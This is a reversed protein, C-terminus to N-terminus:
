IAPFSAALAAATATEEFTPPFAGDRFFPHHYHLSHCINYFPWPSCLIAVAGGTLEEPVATIRQTVTPIM